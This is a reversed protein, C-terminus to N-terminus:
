NLNKNLLNQFLYLPLKTGGPVDALEYAGAVSTLITVTAPNDRDCFAGGEIVTCSLIDGQFTCQEYTPKPGKGPKGALPFTLLSVAVGLWLLKVCKRM